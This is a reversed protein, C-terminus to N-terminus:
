LDKRKLIWYTGLFFLIVYVVSLIIRVQDDLVFIDKEKSSALIAKFFPIPTLDAFVKLPFFQYVDRSIIQGIITEVPFYVIFTVIAIAPRKVIIAFLFAFSFYGLTQMAYLPVLHVNQYWDAASSNLAGIVMGSLFTYTTAIASLVFVMIFKGLIVDRKSLGDIINQRMTKYQFDNTTITVVIVALLVNFFSASFTIFSWLHPFSMPDDQTFFVKLNPAQKFFFNMFFMWSPVAIMYGILIFKLAHFKKLKIYELSLLQKM